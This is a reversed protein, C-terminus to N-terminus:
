APVTAKMPVPYPQALAAVQRRMRRDLPMLYRHKPPQHVWRANADVHERLWTVSQPKAGPGFKGYMSRPHVLRGHIELYRQPTAHGAYIWNGAQYIGGHHGEKEDAFSVVLRMGPNTRRLIRLAEAVIQSVPSAHDTLAVRTLECCEAQTLGYPLPLHQSAGRSFLVVGIFRGDEWAGVKVLKGTPLKHSYHWRTVAWRAAEHGVPGVKLEVTV